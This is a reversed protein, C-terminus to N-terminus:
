TMKTHTKTKTAFHLTKSHKTAFERERELYTRRTRVRERERDRMIEGCENTWRHEVLRLPERSWRKTAVATVATTTAATRQPRVYTRTHTYTHITHKQEVAFNRTCLFEGRASHAEWPTCRHMHVREQKQSKREWMITSIFNVCVCVLVSQSHIQNKKKRIIRAANSLSIEHLWSLLRMLRDDHALIIFKNNPSRRHFMFAGLLQICCSRFSSYLLVKIVSLLGYYLQSWYNFESFM